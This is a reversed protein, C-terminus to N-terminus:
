KPLPSKFNNPPPSLPTPCELNVDEERVGFYYVDDDSDRETLAISMHRQASLDRRVGGEGAGINGESCISNRISNSRTSIGGPQVTAGSERRVGNVEIRPMEAEVPPGSVMPIPSLSPVVTEMLVAPAPEIEDVGAITSSQSRQRSRNWSFSPKPKKVVADSVWSISSSIVDTHHRSNCRHRHTSDFGSRSYASRGPLYQSRQVLPRLTPVCCCIVASSLEAVTWIITQTSDFTPDNSKLSEPLTVIRIISIACTFFGLFFSAFLASKQLKQLRIQGLLPMPLLFIFIDTILHISANTLWWGLVDISWSLKNSYLLSYTIVTSIVLSIGFLILFAIGINCVLEVKPLPFIRRYQLLFAIKITTFAVNYLTIVLISFKQTKIIVRPSLAWFHKGFGLRTALCMVIDHLLIIFFSSVVVTDDIGWKRILFARVYVRLGVFITTVVFLSVTIGLILDSRSGYSADPFGTGMSDVQEGISGPSSGIDLKLSSFWILKPVNPQDIPENLRRSGNTPVRYPADRDLIHKGGRTTYVVQFDSL